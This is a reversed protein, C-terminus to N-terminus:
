VQRDAFTYILLYRIIFYVTGTLLNVEKVLTILLGEVLRVLIMINCEHKELNLAMIEKVKDEWLISKEWAGIRVTRFLLHHNKGM